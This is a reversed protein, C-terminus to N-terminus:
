RLRARIDAVIRDPGPLFADELPPSYPIPTNPTAIRWADDLHGLAQETVCALVEGAWGGTLPGEEVVVIRNTKRVSALVTDIDIPRLTRLDIVEVSIREQELTEAAELADHVSKMATVLTVDSGERVVAAEGLKGVTGDVEGELTYLRKHEFFLVPNDDRIAARLLSKADAPTSPAVIKLGPVGMFWSAPMQSHIAGFRGGAGVVSRIVLPVNVQDQTLFRYKTAQNVLMDMALTLFDGFMIEIVPRLGTVASGFAAGALALESIPTDFVRDGGYKEYLGPTAAFVGGAVAIDEGFLIVREDAALEEDLADRVATRFPIVTM